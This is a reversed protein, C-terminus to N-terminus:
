YRQSTTTILASCSRKAFDSSLKQTPELGARQIYFTQSPSFRQCQDRSSILKLVKRRDVMGFFFFLEDDDFNAPIDLFM